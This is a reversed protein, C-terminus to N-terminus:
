RADRQSVFVSSAEIPQELRDWVFVLVCFFSSVDEVMVGLVGIM